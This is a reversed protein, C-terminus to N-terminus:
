YTRAMQTTWGLPRGVKAVWDKLQLGSETLGIFRGPSDVKGEVAKIKSYSAKFLKRRQDDVELAAALKELWEMVSREDKRSEIAAEPREINDLLRELTKPV